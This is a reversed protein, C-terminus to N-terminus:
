HSACQVGPGGPGSHGDEDDEDYANGSSGNQGRSSGQSPEYDMLNVEETMEDDLNYAPPTPRAPLLSELKSLNDPTTFQTGPFKVSFKIYLFGKEFPNRHMPMGEGKVGKVSGPVIVEGKSSKIVLHRGDLHKVVLTFGCLAETLTIEHSMFLDNGKREFREHPKEDLVIIVDGSEVGPTQDGEGRFVIKEEDKMGKDIHVELIKTDNIVKKGKCVKCRDAENLVEGEGACDHCVSQMQQMMGPGLQRYSVKVGRGKCINCPKRSGAKGGVGNCTKCILNRSLQLKSTKGNYLDELSVKLPHITDQGKRPGRSRGGGFMGGGFGFLQSFIDAGDFGEGDAGEQLGKMGYRDYIERKKPDSLVDNAFSIEKFQHKTIIM